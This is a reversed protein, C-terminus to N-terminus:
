LSSYIKLRTFRDKLISTDNSLMRNSNSTEVPGSKLPPLLLSGPGWDEWWYLAEWWVM